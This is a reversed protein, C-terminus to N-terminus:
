GPLGHIHGLPEVLPEFQPLFPGDAQDRVHTGVRGPQGRISNLRDPVVDGSM